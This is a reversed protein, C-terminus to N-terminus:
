AACAVCRVATPMVALRGAPIEAGCNECIGYQGEAIRRLAARIAAMERLKASELAELTEIEEIENAQEEWDADLPATTLRDLREVDGGLERYRALLERRIDDFKTMARDGTAPESESKSIPRFPKCRPRSAPTATARWGPRRAFAEIGTPARGLILAHLDHTGECTNVAELDLAQRIVALADSIGNAGLMDRAERAIGLARECTNRKLRSIARPALKGEDLLRGCRLALFLGLTIATDIDALKTPILPTAAPPRGFPQRELTSACAAHWCAEAAGTAGWGIGCRASNRCGFPGRLGAIHPLRRDGPCRSAAGWM